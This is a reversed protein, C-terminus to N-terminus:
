ILDGMWVDLDFPTIYKVDQYVPEKGNHGILRQAPLGASDEVFAVDADNINEVIVGRAMANLRAVAGMNPKHAQVVGRLACQINTMKNEVRSAYGNEVTGRMDLWIVECTKLDLAFLVVTNSSSTLDVRNVVTKPEFVEGRQAQDREMWGAFCEPIDTFPQGTYSHASFAVYRTSPSHTKVLPINIDIFESAGNPASTIDGSHVAMGMAGSRLHTYSIHDVCKWNEDLLSASLDVDVRNGFDWGWHSAIEEPSHSTNKWHVFARVIKASTRVPFRSGRTVMRTTAEASRQAYPSIYHQMEPSVYVNGMAPKRAYIVSLADICIRCIRAPIGSNIQPLKEEKVFVRGTAGKPFFTRVDEEGRHSYYSLVQLLVPTSVNSAVDGFADCVADQKETSRLVRDLNRAFEGPRTSLLQLVTELKGTRIAADLKGGFTEIKEGDRIAKFAALIAPYKKSFEGPHLIEGLRIWQGKYRAMDETINKCGDLLALINRREKRSFKKFNTNSALSIDGDSLSVAFRLVDTATKFYKSIYLYACSCAEIALKGIYAVNEKMPIVEPMSLNSLGVEFFFFRLDDKDQESLSTKSSMLNSAIENFETRTGLGITKLQVKDSLPARIDQEYVPLLAGFSVYHVLANYLLEIDSHNLVQEPFNPYFPHYSYNAGVMKKLTSLTNKYFLRLQSIPAREMTHFLEDSVTYGLAEFNKLSGLIFNKKETDLPFEYFVDMLVKERRRLFIENTSIAKEM